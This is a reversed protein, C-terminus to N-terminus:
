NMEGDIMALTDALTRLRRHQEEAFDLLDQHRRANEGLAAALDPERQSLEQLLRQQESLLAKLQAAMSSVDPM